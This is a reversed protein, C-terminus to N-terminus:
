KRGHSVLEIGSEGVGPRKGRRVVEIRGNERIYEYLGSDWLAVLVQAVSNYLAPTRVHRRAPHNIAGGDTLVDDDFLWDYDAAFTEYSDAM